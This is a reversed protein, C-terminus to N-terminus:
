YFAERHISFLQLHIFSQPLHCFLIGSTYIRFIKQKEHIFAWLESNRLNRPENPWMKCLQCKLGNYFALKIVEKFKVEGTHPSSLRKQAEFPSPGFIDRFNGGSKKEEFPIRGRGDRWTQSGRTLTRAVWSQLFYAFNLTWVFYWINCWLVVVM